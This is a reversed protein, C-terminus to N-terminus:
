HTSLKLHRLVAEVDCPVDVPRTVASLASGPDKLGNGSVVVAVTESSTILGEDRAVRVGAGAAAAAPEAFVGSQQGLEPIAALIAQDSVAVWAGRSREVAQLAKHPNRAHGVCISDAVSAAPGPSWAEGTKWADVLAAAGAAQVGLFRPVREIIGAAHAEEFGKVAGAISCGDGVSLVVWDPVTQALQEALELGVTKKGEVLYPNHACNRNFWPQNAAVEACLEWTRDYDADVRFVQAGFVRLQAVKPEPARRPVFITAPLGVSAAHCALSSAANGTSACVVRQAGSAQALLVALASPRDKLSASPNRGDDKLWLRHVGLAEALRTAEYVPTGGTLLPPPEAGKPLPLVERYRWMDFARPHKPDNLAAGLQATADHQYVVDM